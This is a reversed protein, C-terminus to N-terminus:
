APDDWPFTEQSELGPEVLRLSEDFRLETEAGSPGHRNKLVALYLSKQAVKGKTSEDEIASERWGAIIRDAAEEIVGSDRISDLTPRASGDGAQRSLQVAALIVVKEELAVDKLRRANESAREYTRASDHGGWGLLGMYDVVLITPRRGIREAVADLAEPLQGVALSKPLIAVRGALYHAESLIEPLTLDKKARATLEMPNLRLAHGALREALHRPLMEMELMAVAAQADQKLTEELLELLVWTKGVGPRAAILVLEGATIPRGYDLESWRCLIAPPKDLRADDIMEQFAEEVTVVNRVAAAAKLGEQTRRESEERWAEIEAELKAANAAVVGEDLEPDLDGWWHKTM